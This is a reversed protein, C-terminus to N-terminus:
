EACNRESIVYGLKALAQWHFWQVDKRRLTAPDVWAVRVIEDEPAIWSAAPDDGVSGRVTFTISRIFTGSPSRFFADGLFALTDPEPTFDYGTEEEVERIIGEIVTEEPDLHVGGGPLNWTWGSAWIPEVLLLHGKREIVGYGGIRWRVPANGPREHENGHIDFYRTM